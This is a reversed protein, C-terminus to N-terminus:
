FYSAAPDEQKEDAGNVKVKSRAAPTVGFEVLWAKLRRDADMLASYAPRMREMQDGSKTIVTQFRGNAAIDARLEVIEAYTESVQELAAADAETLVGIRDLMASFRGWAVRASPSLHEPPSPISRSLTPEAKNIPRKGANGTVLRLHTPKPRRGAM